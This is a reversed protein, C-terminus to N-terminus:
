SGQKGSTPVQSVSDGDNLPTTATAPRGNVRTSAVSIGRLHDDEILASVSSGEPVNTEVLEGGREISIRITGTSM